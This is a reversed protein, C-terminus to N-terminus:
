EQSPTFQVLLPPLGRNTAEMWFRFGPQFASPALRSVAENSPLANHPILAQTPAPPVGPCNTPCSGPSKLDGGCALLWKALWSSPQLGFQWGVSM